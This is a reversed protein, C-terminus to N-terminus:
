RTPTSERAPTGPNLATSPPVLGNLRLYTTITGYDDADHVVNSIFSHARIAPVVGSSPGGLADLTEGLWSETAAALAADCYAVSDRLATVIDAKSTLLALNPASRKEVGPPIGPQSCYMYHAGTSHKIQDAFTRVDPTPRFSYGTEPMMEAALVMYNSYIDFSRQIAAGLPRNGFTQLRRQEKSRAQDFKAALAQSAKIQDPTLGPAQPAVTQSRVFSAQLLLVAVLAAARTM